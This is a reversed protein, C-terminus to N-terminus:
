NPFNDSAAVLPTRYFFTNKFSEYFEYSFVHALRKKLLTAFKKESCRRAGVESHNIDVARETVHFYKIQCVPTYKM